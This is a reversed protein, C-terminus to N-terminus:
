WVQHIWSAALLDVLPDGIWQFVADQAHRATSVLASAPAAESRAPQGESLEQAAQRNPPQAPVTDPIGPRNTVAGLLPSAHGAHRVKVTVSGLISGNATDTATITQYGRTRLTTEGLGTDTFTHVGDDAATFRYDAPLVVGPNPDTTSFTVTDAYGVALQGFPDVATVTVDFPM